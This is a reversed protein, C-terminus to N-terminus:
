GGADAAAPADIFDTLLAFTLHPDPNRLYHLELEQLLSSLESANALLTPIVIMTRDEAPIGESYDMRPLTRPPLQHTITWHVLNISADM